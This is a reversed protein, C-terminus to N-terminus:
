RRSWRRNVARVLLAHLRELRPVAAGAALARRLPEGWISDVEVERGREYDILSSPRYAGMTQTSRLHDQAVSAPLAHGCAAATGLVVRGQASHDIAGPGTRNICVFGLGEVAGAGVIAIRPHAPLDEM